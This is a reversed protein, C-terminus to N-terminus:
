GPCWRAERRGCRPCATCGHRTVVAKWLYTCRTPACSSTVSSRTTTSEPSVCVKQSGVTRWVISCPQCSWVFVRVSPFVISIATHSTSDMINHTGKKTVDSINKVPQVGTSMPSGCFCASNLLCFHESTMKDLFNWQIVFGTRIRMTHVKVTVSTSIVSPRGRNEKFRM